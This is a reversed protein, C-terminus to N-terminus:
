VNRSAQRTHPAPQERPCRRVRSSKRCWLLDCSAISPWTQLRPVRRKLRWHFLYLSLFPGVSLGNDWLGFYPNYPVCRAASAGEQKLWFEYQERSYATRVIDGENRPIEDRPVESGFNATRVLRAIARWPAFMLEVVWKRSGPVTPVIVSFLVGGPRLLRWSERLVPVPDVFHELLGINYVCDYSESNLGTTRVDACVARPIHLGRASFNRVAQAIANPALDVLTIECGKQALYMSVTGRGCGLEVCAISRRPSGILAWLDAVYAQFWFEQLTQPTGRSQPVLDSRSSWVENWETWNGSDTRPMEDDSTDNTVTVESDGTVDIVRNDWGEPDCSVTVVSADHAGYM